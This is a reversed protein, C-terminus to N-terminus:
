ASGEDILNSNNTNPQTNNRNINSNTNTNAINANTNTNAINATNANPDKFYMVDDLDIKPPKM